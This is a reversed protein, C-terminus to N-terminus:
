TKRQTGYLWIGSSTRIWPPAEVFTKAPKEPGLPTQYFKHLLAEIFSARNDYEEMAKGHTPILCYENKPYKIFVVFDRICLAINFFIKSPNLYHRVRLQPGMRPNNLWCNEDTASKPYQWENLQFEIPILLLDLEHKIPDNTFWIAEIVPTLCDFAIYLYHIFWLVNM